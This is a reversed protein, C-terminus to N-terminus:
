LHKHPRPTVRQEGQTMVQQAPNLSLIHSFFLFVEPMEYRVDAKRKPTETPCSGGSAAAEVKSVYGVEPCTQTRVSTGKYVNKFIQM